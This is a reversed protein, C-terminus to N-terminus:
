LNLKILKKTIVQIEAKIVIVYVGSPLYEVDIEKTAQNNCDTNCFQNGQFNMLVINATTEKGMFDIIFKGTTPNPYINIERQLDVEEFVMEKADAILSEETEMPTQAMMPPQQSCYDGTTTIYANSYSGLHSTFGPNFIIKNGAIFTAEGGSNVVVTTGSGAVTITNTADYCVTQPSNIVANQLVFNTPV